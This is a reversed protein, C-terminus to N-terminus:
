MLKVEMCTKFTNKLSIYAPDKNHYGTFKEHHAMCYYCFVRDKEM